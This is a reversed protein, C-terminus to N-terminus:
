IDLDFDKKTPRARKLVAPKQDEIRAPETPVEAPAPGLLQEKEEAMAAREQATRIAEIEDLLSPEPAPPKIHKKILMDLIVSMSWTTRRAEAELAAIAADSLYYKRAKGARPTSYRAV